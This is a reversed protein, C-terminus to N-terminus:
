TSIKDFYDFIESKYDSLLSSIDQSDYNEFYKIISIFDAFGTGSYSKYEEIDDIKIYSLVIILRFLLKAIDLNEDDSANSEKKEKYFIKNYNIVDDYITKFNDSEIAELYDCLNDFFKGYYSDIDSSNIKFIDKWIVPNSSNLRFAKRLIDEDPEEEPTMDVTLFSLFQPLHSVLSFIKDHKKAEMFELKSGIIQALDTLNDINKDKAYENVASAILKKDLFLESYSNALGSKESGAIPHCSIFSNEPLNKALTLPYSNLSGFDIIFSSLVHSSVKNFLDRYASLPTCIAVLDFKEKKSFDYYENALKVALIEDIVLKDNDFVSINCEPNKTKIAKILSSGILGCGIILIKQM